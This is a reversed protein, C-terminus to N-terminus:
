AKLFAPPSGELEDRTAEDNCGIWACAWGFANYRADVDLDDAIDINHNTTDIQVQYTGSQVFRVNWDTGEITITGITETELNPVTRKSRVADKGSLDAFGCSAATGLTVAGLGATKLFRRRTQHDM